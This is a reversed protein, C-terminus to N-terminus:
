ADDVAACTQADLAQGGPQRGRTPRHQRVVGAHLICGTAVVLFQEGTVLDGIMTAVMAKPMPM